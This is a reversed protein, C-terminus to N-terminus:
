LGLGSALVSPQWTLMCTCVWVCVHVFVVDKYCKGEFYCGIWYYKKKIYVLAYVNRPKKLLFFEVKHLHIESACTHWYIHCFLCAFLNPLFFFLGWLPWFWSNLCGIRAFRFFIKTKKNISGPWFYGLYGLSTM